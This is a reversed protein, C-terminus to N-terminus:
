LDVSEQLEHDSFKRHTRKRPPPPAGERKQVKTNTEPLEEDSEDANAKNLLSAAARTKVEGAVRERKKNERHEVMQARTKFYVTCKKMEAMSQLIFVICNFVPEVLRTAFFTQGNTMQGMQEMDTVLEKLDPSETTIPTDMHSLTYFLNATYTIPSSDAFMMDVVDHFFTSSEYIEGHTFKLTEFRRIDRRLAMAPSRIRSDTRVSDIESEQLEPLDIKYRMSAKMKLIRLFQDGSILNFFLQTLAGFIRKKKVYLAWNSDDAVFNLFVSANNEFLNFETADPSVLYVVRNSKSVYDEVMTPNVHKLLYSSYSDNTIGQYYKYVDRDEYVSSDGRKILSYYRGAIAASSSGFTRDNYQIASSDSIKITNVGALYCIMDAMKSLEAGRLDSSVLKWRQQLFDIEANIQFPDEELTEISLSFQIGCVPAFPYVLEIEKAKFEEGYDNYALEIQLTVADTDLKSKLLVMHRKTPATGIWTVWVYNRKDRASPNHGFSRINFRDMEMKRQEEIYYTRKSNKVNVPMPAIEAYVIAGALTKDVGARVTARHGIHHLWASGFFCLNGAALLVSEVQSIAKIDSKSFVYTASSQSWPHFKGVVDRMKRVGEKKEDTVKKALEYYRSVSMDSATEKLTSLDFGPLCPFKVAIRQDLDILEHCDMATDIVDERTPMREKLYEKANRSLPIIPVTVKTLVINDKAYADSPRGQYIMQIGCVVREKAAHAKDIGYLVDMLKSLSDIEVTDIKSDNNYYTTVELAHSKSQSSHSKTPLVTVIGGYMCEPDSHRPWIEWSPCFILGFGVFGSNKGVLPELYKCYLTVDNDAYYPRESQLIAFKHFPYPCYAGTARGTSNTWMTALLLDELGPAYLQAALARWEMSYLHPSEEFLFNRIKAATGAFGKSDGLSWTLPSAMSLERGYQDRTPDQPEYGPSVKAHRTALTWTNELPRLDIKEGNGLTKFDVETETVSLNEEIQYIKFLMKKTNACSWIKHHVIWEIPAPAAGEALRVADHQVLNRAEVDNMYIRSKNYPGDTASFATRRQSYMNTDSLMRAAIKPDSFDLEAACQYIRKAVLKRDDEPRFTDLNSCDLDVCRKKENTEWIRTHRPLDFLGYQNYELSGARIDPLTVVIVRVAHKYKQLIQVLDADIRQQRVEGLSKAVFEAKVLVVQLLLATDSDVFRYRPAEGSEDSEPAFQSVDKIFAAVLEDKNQSDQGRLVPTHYDVGIILSMTLASHAIIACLFLIALAM